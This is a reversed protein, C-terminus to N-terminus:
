RICTAGDETTTRLNDKRISILGTTLDTSHLQTRHVQGVFGAGLIADPRAASELALDYPVGLM